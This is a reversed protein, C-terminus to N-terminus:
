VHFKTARLLIWKGDAWTKDECTMNLFNSAFSQLLSQNGYKSTQAGSGFSRRMQSWIKKFLAACNSESWSSSLSMSIKYVQLCHLFSEAMLIPVNLSLSM